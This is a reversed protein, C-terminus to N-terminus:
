AVVGFKSDLLSGLINYYTEMNKIPFRLARMRTAIYVVDKNNIVVYKCLTVVTCM